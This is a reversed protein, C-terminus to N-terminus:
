KIDPLRQRREIATPRRLRCHVVKTQPEGNYLTHDKVTATLVGKRGPPVESWTTTNWVLVDGTKTTMKLMFQPYRFHFFVFINKVTVEVNELRQGVKGFWRSPRKPRMPRLQVVNSMTRSTM